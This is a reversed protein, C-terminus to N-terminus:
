HAVSRRIKFANQTGTSVTEAFVFGLQKFMPTHTIYDDINVVLALTLIAPNKEAHAIAEYVSEIDFKGHGFMAVLETPQTADRILEMSATKDTTGKASKYKESVQAIAESESVDPRPQIPTRDIGRLKLSFRVYEYRPSANTVGHGVIKFGRPELVQRWVELRTRPVHIELRLAPSHKADEVANDLAVDDFDGQYLAVDMGSGDTCCFNSDVELQSHYTMSM